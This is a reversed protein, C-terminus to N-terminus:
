AFKNESVSPLRLTRQSRIVDEQLHQDSRQKDVFKYLQSGNLKIHDADKCGTQM